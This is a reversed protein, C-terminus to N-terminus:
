DYKSVKKRGFNPFRKTTNAEKYKLNIRNISSRTVGTIESIEKITKNMKSFDVVRPKVEIPYHKVM